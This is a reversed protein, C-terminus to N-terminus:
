PGGRLRRLEAELAQVRAEAERRAQAEQETRKKAAAARKRAAATQKEATAVKEEAAELERIAESPDPIREGKEDFCVVQDDEGVGLWMRFPELLLRGREDTPLPAYGNPAARFGLLQTPGRPRRAEGRDVVVYLPVRGRYYARVKVGLDNKRTDYSTVEVALLPKAGYRATVFTGVAPDKGYVGEFVALDPGFPKLGRVSWDVRHDCLVLFGPRGASRAGLVTELYRCDRHHAENNVIFDGEQPHLLDAKTLPVQEHEV